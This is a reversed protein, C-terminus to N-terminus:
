ISVKVYVELLSLPGFFTRLLDKGVARNDVDVTPVALITNLLLLHLKGDHGPGPHSSPKLIIGISAEFVVSRLM